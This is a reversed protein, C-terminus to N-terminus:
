LSVTRYPSSMYVIYQLLSLPVCHYLTSGRRKFWQLVPDRICFCKEQCQHHPRVKNYDIECKIRYLFGSYIIPDVRMCRAMLGSDRSHEVILVTISVTLRM